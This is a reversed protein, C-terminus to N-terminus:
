AGTLLFFLRAAYGATAVLLVPVALSRVSRWVDSTRALHLGLGVGIALVPWYYYRYDTAVGVFLFGLGYM